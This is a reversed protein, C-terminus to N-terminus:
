RVNNVATISVKAHENIYAQIENWVEYFRVIDEEILESGTQVEIMELDANAKVAHKVGAPIQLVDGARIQRFQDDIVFEGTGKIVTWVESRKFHMQYSLNKGKKICIRKTLVENGDDLKTYDLVKYWGWRREEYMPRLNFSHIMTKIRTSQEKNSVLIGDPSVAVIADKVGLVAVPIDLENILHTNISDDSLMGKGILRSDMEETLTNWTGIDKWTGEYPLVAIKKEKEVVEYDFSNMPLDVYRQLLQDYNTPLGLQHLMTIMYKLKFAFVGCNWLADQDLLHQATQEDPKEIFHSVALTKNVANGNGVNPVIYGYKTSPSTPRVGLLALRVDSSHVAEELDKLREFFCDEVYSDVPLVTIVEELSTNKVTYLFASALAIAAFTDRRTPEVVLASPPISLQNQLINVQPKSTAIITQNTLKVKSLQNWVRQVMSVYQGESNHLVKLFQKSRTDNSLPWLRKGSGGSLLVLKM